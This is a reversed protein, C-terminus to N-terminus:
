AAETSCMARLADVTITRANGSWDILEFHADRLRAWSELVDRRLPVSMDHSFSAGGGGCYIRLEQKPTGRGKQDLHDLRQLEDLSLKGYDHTDHREPRALESLQKEVSRAAVGLKGIERQSLATGGRLAHLIAQYLQSRKEKLHAVRLDTEPEATVACAANVQRVWTEEDATLRTVDFPGDDHAATKPATSAEDTKLASTLIAALESARRNGDRGAALDVLGADVIAWLGNNVAKRLDVEEVENTVATLNADFSLARAIWNRKSSWRALNGFPIATEAALKRLSRTPGMDLFRLFAAYCNGGEGVQQAWGCNM